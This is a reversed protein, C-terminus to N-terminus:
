HVDFTKLAVENARNNMLNGWVACFNCDAQAERSPSCSKKALFHHCEGVERM